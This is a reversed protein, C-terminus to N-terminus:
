PSRRISAAPAMVARATSRRSELPMRGRQGPRTSSTTVTAVSTAASPRSARSRQVWPWSAAQISSLRRRPWHQRPRSRLSQRQRQPRPQRRARRFRLPRRFWPLPRRLRPPRCRRRRPPHAQRPRPRPRPRWHAPRKALWTGLPLRPRRFQLSTRDRPRHRPRHRNLPAPNRRVAPAWCRSPL